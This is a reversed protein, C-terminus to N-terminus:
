ASENPKLDITNPFIGLMKEVRCGFCQIAALPDVSGLDMDYIDNYNFTGDELREWANNYEQRKYM